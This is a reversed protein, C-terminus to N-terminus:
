PDATTVVLAPRRLADRTGARSAAALEFAVTELRRAPRYPAPAVSPVADDPQRRQVVLERAIAIGSLGAAIAAGASRWRVAVATLGIVDAAALAIAHHRPDWYSLPSSWRTKAVPWLPAWADSHHTLYDVALHGLWGNTFASLPAGSPAVVRLGAAPWVSHLTLHIERWPSKGYVHDIMEARPRRWTGDCVGLYIAPLDPTIGGLVAWPSRTAWATWAAHSSTLM